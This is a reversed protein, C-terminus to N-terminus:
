AAPIRRTRLGPRRPTRLLGACSRGRASATDADGLERYVEALLMRTRAVQFPAMSHRGATSPSGCLASRRCRLPRPRTPGCRGCHAGEARLGASEFTEGVEAVVQASEAASRLTAPLWRSRRGPRRPLQALEPPESDRPGRRARRRDVGVGCRDQGAGAAAPRSRAASRTRVRTRQQVGGRRRGSRWAPPTGGRGRLVRRGRRLRRDRGHGQLRRTGGGRGAEWEGRIQHVQARAGPLDGSVALDAPLPDCWRRTAETWEFARRLDRLENCADMLGCYIAGTWLQGLQESLAAVMAEDLLSMGERSRRRSSSSAARSASGSRKGPDPRRLPTRRRAHAPGEKSPATSTEMAWAPARDPPLPRLRAQGGRPCGRPTAQGPELWGVSQAAEGVLRSHIALLIATRAAASPDGEDVHWGTPRRTSM